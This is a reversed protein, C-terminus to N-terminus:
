PAAPTEPQWLEIPSGEPDHLRAVRGNPYDQPDVEIAIGAAQQWPSEGYNSPTLTVGLNEHYWRALM